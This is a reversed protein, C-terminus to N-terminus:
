QKKLLANEWLYPMLNKWALEGDFYKAHHNYIVNEVQKKVNKSDILACTKFDTSHIIDLFYECMEKKMWDVIPTNFGIKTKRNVIEDPVYPRIADRIISKTYGNRIKSKWNLSMAYNVVRYDM